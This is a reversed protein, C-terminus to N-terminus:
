ALFGFSIEETNKFGQPYMEKVSPLFLIDCDDDNLMEIDRSITNPYKDYDNKDNFQTPNVFISCITLKCEQKSRKLLSIHGAHLAGMTPVFGLSKSENDPSQLYSQLDKIRKFILM